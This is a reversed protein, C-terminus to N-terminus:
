NEKPIRSKSLLPNSIIDGMYVKLGPKLYHKFALAMNFM